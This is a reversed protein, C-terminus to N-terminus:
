RILLLYVLDALIAIVVLVTLKYVIPVREVPPDVLTLAHHRAAPDEDELATKRAQEIMRGVELASLGLQSAFAIIRRRGARDLRGSRLEADLLAEFVERSAIRRDHQGVEDGAAPQPAPAAANSDAPQEM